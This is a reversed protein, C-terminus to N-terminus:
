VSTRLKELGENLQDILKNVKFLPLNGIENLKTDIDIREVLEFELNESDLYHAIQFICNIINKTDQYEVCVNKTFNTDNDSHDYVRVNFTQCLVIIKEELSIYRKWSEISPNLLKSVLKNLM